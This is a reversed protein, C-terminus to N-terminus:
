CIPSPIATLFFSHLSLANWSPFNIYLIKVTHLNKRLMVLGTDQEVM